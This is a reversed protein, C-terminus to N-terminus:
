DAHTFWLLLCMNKQNFFIGTSKNMLAVHPGATRLSARFPLAFCNVLLVVYNAWPNRIFLVLFLCPM